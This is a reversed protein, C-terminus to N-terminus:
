GVKVCSFIPLKTNILRLSSAMYGSCANNDDTTGLFISDNKTSSEPTQGPCVQETFVYYAAGIQVNQQKSLWDATLSSGADDAQKSYYFDYLM